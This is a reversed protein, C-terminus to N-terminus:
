REVDLLYVTDKKLLKAVEMIQKPTVAEIKAIRQELTSKKDLLAQVYLVNQRAGQSDESERLDNIMAQKSLNLEKESILSTTMKLVEEDIVKKALDVRKADVGSYIFLIGKYADYVSSIYYCLSHKERVNLFLRSHVYGGLAANFLLAAIHLDQGNWVPLRYGINLKTQSIQDHEVVESIADFTKTEYDLFDSQNFSANPFYQNTLTKYEEKIDGSLIVQLEDKKLFAKYMSKFTKFDLNEIDEKTGSTRYGYLEDQCMVEFLRTLAFRTKDNEKSIVEELLLRKELEFDAESFTKHGYIYEKLFKLGEEFSADDTLSPSAIKLQIHIVSLRGIKNTNSTLSAGYMAELKENFAMRNRYLNTKARLVSPLLTRFAFADKSAKAKFKLTILVTKFKKTQDILIM